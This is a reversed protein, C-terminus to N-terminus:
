TSRTTLAFSRCGTRRRFARPSSPPSISTSEVTTTWSCEVTRAWATNRGTTPCSGATRRTANASSAGPIDGDYDIYDFFLNMTGMNTNPDSLAAAVEAASPAGLGGDDGAPEERTFTDTEADTVRFMLVEGSAVNSARFEAPDDLNKEFSFCNTEVDSYCVQDDGKVSWTRRFTENWAEIEATGDANYKGVATMGPKLEIEATAGAILAQLTDAGTLPQWNDAYALTSAGPAFLTTAISRTDM